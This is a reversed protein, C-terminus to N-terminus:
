TAGSARGVEQVAGAGRAAPATENERAPPAILLDAGAMLPIQLLATTLRRLTGETVLRGHRARSLTVEPIGAVESLKRATMGRLALQYDLRAPDLRHGNRRGVEM